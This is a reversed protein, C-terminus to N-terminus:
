AEPFDMMMIQEVNEQSIYVEDGKQQPVPQPAEVFADDLSPDDLNEMIWM